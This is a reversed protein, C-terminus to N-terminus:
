GGGDSPRPYPANASVASRFAGPPLGALRKFINSMHSQDAFGAEAAIDALTKESEVLLEKVKEVRCRTLFRYPALGTTNRFLRAFHFVSLGAARAIDELRVDEALNARMYEMVRGLRRPSLQGTSAFRLDLRGSARLATKVCGDIAGM